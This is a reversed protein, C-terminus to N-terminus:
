GHNFKFLTIKIKFDKAEFLAPLIIYHEKASSLARKATECATRLRQMSRKDELLSNVNEASKKIEDICFQFLENDFDEGGLHTNGNTRAVELVEDGISLITVDFTGGGLDFVMINKYKKTDEQIGYALAAATPENMIGLVDLGALVGATKTSERQANTFREPVSIVAKKVPSGIHKDAMVKMRKLIIAAIEEPYYKEAKGYTEIEIVPKNDVDLVKFPFTALDSKITPDDYRRGILRKINYATNRANLEIQNKASEGVLRENKTYAVYSPTTRNGEENPIVQTKGNQWVCVCSYTTGLDIGMVPENLAKEEAMQIPHCCILNKILKYLLSIFFNM